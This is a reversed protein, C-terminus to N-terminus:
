RTISGGVCCWLKKLFKGGKNSQIPNGFKYFSESNSFYSWMTLAIFTEHLFVTTLKLKYNSKTFINKYTCEHISEVTGAFGWGLVCANELHSQEAQHHGDTPCHSLPLHIDCKWTLETYFHEYLFTCFM